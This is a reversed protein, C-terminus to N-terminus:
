AHAADERAAAVALLRAIEATEIDENVYAASAEVVADRADSSLNGSRMANAVIIAMEDLSLGTDLAVIGTSPLSADDKSEAAVAVPKAAAQAQKSAARKDAAIQAVDLLYADVAAIYNIASVEAAHETDIAIGDADITSASLKVPVGVIDLASLHAQYYLAAKAPQAFVGKCAKATSYLKAQEYLSSARGQLQNKNGHKLAQLYATYVTSLLMDHRAESNGAIAKVIDTLSLNSLTVAKM